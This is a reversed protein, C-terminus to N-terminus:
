FKINKFFLVGKMSGATPLGSLDPFLLSGGHNADEGVVIEM